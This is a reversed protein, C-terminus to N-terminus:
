YVPGYVTVNNKEDTEGINEFIDLVAILYKGSISGTLTHRFNITKSKGAKIKGFPSEKLVADAQDLVADDSLYYRIVSKKAKMSGLNTVTLSGKLKCLTESNNNISCYQEAHLWEGTLDPGVIEKVAFDAKVQRIGDGITLSCTMGTVIDCGEWHLFNFHDYDPTVTLTVPTGPEYLETCDGPCNIGPGTVVGGGHPIIYVRLNFNEVILSQAVANWFGPYNVFNASSTNGLPPAQGITSFLDYGASWSDGGGGSIVDQEIAFNASSSAAHLIGAFALLMTASILFCLCHRYKKRYKMM